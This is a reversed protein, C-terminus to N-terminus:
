IRVPRKIEISGHEPLSQMMFAEREAFWQEHGTHTACRGTDKPVGRTSIGRRLLRPTM